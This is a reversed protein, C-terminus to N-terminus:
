NTDLIDKLTANIDDFPGDHTVVGDYMEEYKRLRAKVDANLFGLRLITGHDIGEAMSVDGESDGLLIVNSRERVTELYPGHLAIEGKNLVHILEGKVDTVCGNEDHEFFNSIVHVNDTDYGHMRLLELIVDGLGASFVLVPIGHANVIRFFEEIGPRFVKPNERAVRRLIEKTLGGERMFEHHKQWWEAMRKYKIEYPITDDNEIPHYTEFLAHDKKAYEEGLYRNKRILAFSSLHRKGNYFAKTLTKDFDTVIHISQPGDDRMRRVKEDFGDTDKIHM